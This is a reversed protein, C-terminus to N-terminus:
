NTNRLIEAVKNKRKRADSEELLNNLFITDTSSIFMRSKEIDILTNLEYDSLNYLQVERGKFRINM